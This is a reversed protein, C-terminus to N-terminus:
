IEPFVMKEGFLVKQHFFPFDLIVCLLARWHREAARPLGPPYNAVELKLLLVVHGAHMATISFIVRIKAIKAACFNHSRSLESHPGFHPEPWPVPTWSVRRPTKPRRGPRVPDVPDYCQSEVLVSARSLIIALTYNQFFEARAINHTIVARQTGRLARSDHTTHRSFETPTRPVATTTSPDREKM